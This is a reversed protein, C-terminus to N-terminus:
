KTIGKQVCLSYFEYNDNKLNELIRQGDSTMKLKEINNIIINMMKQRLIKNNFNLSKKIIYKGYQNLIINVIDNSHNNLLCNIIHEGIIKDNKEFCKEITSSSFKNKCYEVINEEIKEIIPLIENFKNKDFQFFIYQILFNGFCDKMIKDINIIILEIIKKRQIEDGQTLAKEIVCVGYKSKSLSIFQKYIYDYIFKTLEPNNILTLFKQILFNGYSSKFLTGINQMMLINILQKVLIKNQYIRELLKQIVRSGNETLCIDYIQSQISSIFLSLNNFSLVDILSQMFFNGSLDCCIQPLNKMLEPFLFDNAFKNDVRIREQLFKCGIQTKILRLANKALKEGEMNYINQYINMYNMNNGIFLNNNNVQSQNFNINNFNQVNNFNNNPNFRNIIFYSQKNYPFRDQNFGNNNIYNYPYYGQNTDFYNQQNQINYNNNIYNNNISYYILKKNDNNNNPQINMNNITYNYNNNDNSNKINNYSNSPITKTKIENLQKEETKEKNENPEKIFKFAMDDSIHLYNKFNKTGNEALKEKNDIYSTSLIKNKNKNNQKFDISDEINTGYFFKFVQNEEQKETQNTLMFLFNNKSREKDSTNNCSSEINNGKILESKLIFNRKSSNSEKKSISIKNDIKKPIKVTKEQSLKSNKSIELIKKNTPSLCGGHLSVEDIKVSSYSKKENESSVSDKKKKKEIKNISNKKLLEKKIKSKQFINKGTFSNRRKKQIENCSSNVEIINELIESFENKEQDNEEKIKIM